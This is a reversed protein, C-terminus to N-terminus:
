SAGKSHFQTATVVPWRMLVAYHRGLTNQAMQAVVNMEQLADIFERAGYSKNAGPMIEREDDVVKRANHIMAQGDAVAEMARAILGHRYESLTHGIFRLEIATKGTRYLRADPDAKTEHTENSCAPGKCDSGDGNGHDTGLERLVSKHSAWAGILTGDVSFHEGSLWDKEYGM